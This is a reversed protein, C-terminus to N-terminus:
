DCSYELRKLESKIEELNNMVIDMTVDSQIHCAFVAKDRADANYYATLTEGDELTAALAM